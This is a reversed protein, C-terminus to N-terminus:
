FIIFILFFSCCCWSENVTMTRTHCWKGPDSILRDKMQSSMRWCTDTCTRSASADCSRSVRGCGEHSDWMCPQQRIRVYESTHQRIRIYASTHPGYRHFKWFEQWVWRTTLLYLLWFTSTVVWSWLTGLLATGITAWVMLGTMGQKGLAGTSVDPTVDRICVHWFTIFSVRRRQQACEHM